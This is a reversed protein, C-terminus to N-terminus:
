EAPAPTQEWATDWSIRRWVVGSAGEEVPVAVCMYFYERSKAWNGRSCPQGPWQPVDVETSGYGVGAPLSPLKLFPGILGHETELFFNEGGGESDIVLRAQIGKVEVTQPMQAFLLLPAIWVLKKM